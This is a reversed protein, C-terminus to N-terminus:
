LNHFCLVYWLLNLLWFNVPFKNEDGLRWFVGVLVHDSKGNLIIWISITKVFFDLTFFFLRKLFVRFLVLESWLDVVLHCEAIHLLAQYILYHRHRHAFDIIYQGLRCFFIFFQQVFRNKSPLIGAFVRTSLRCRRVGDLHELLMVLRTNWSHALELCFVLFVRKIILPFFQLFLFTLTWLASHALRDCFFFVVGLFYRIFFKRVDLTRAFPQQRLLTLYLHLFRYFFWRCFCLFQATFDM